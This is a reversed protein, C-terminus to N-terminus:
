ERHGDEREGDVAVVIDVRAELWISIGRAIGEAKFSFTHLYKKAKAANSSRGHQRARKPELCYRNGIEM